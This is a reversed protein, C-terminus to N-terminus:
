KKQPSEDTNEVVAEKIEETKGLLKERLNEYARPSILSTMSQYSTIILPALRSKAIIPTKSPLYFTLLVIMLYTIIIGKLIALCAGLSRDAWGLSAKKLMLKLAWGAMNGSVLVLIFIAAFSVLPLYVGPPLYGKLYETMQPQYTNALLIGLVVGALSGIERFFGRLLGRVLILVMMGIIIMDLLNM